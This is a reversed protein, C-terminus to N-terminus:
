TSGELGRAMESILQKAAQDDGKRALIRLEHLRDRKAQARTSKMGFLESVLIQDVDLGHIPQQFSDVGTRHQSDLRLRNINMWEVSGAVLPSHSTLIFQLRPFTKSLHGVVDMQWTPHLHLDIEDVLVIGSVENLQLESRGCAFDLHFLLDTVWGLFARYGDSLSRFPIELGGRSFVFDENSRSGEFVFHGQGLAGNILDVV